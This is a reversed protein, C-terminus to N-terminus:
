GSFSKRFILGDNGNDVVKEGAPTLGTAIVENWLIGSASDNIQAMLEINKSEDPNLGTINWTINRGEPNGAPNSSIYDMSEPLDDLVSIPYLSVKGNNTVKIDFSIPDGPCAESANATKNISINACSIVEVSDNGNDSVKEGM